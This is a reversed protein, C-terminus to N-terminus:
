KKKSKKSLIVTLAILLVAIIGVVVLIVPNRTDGTAPSLVALNNLLTNMVTFVSM